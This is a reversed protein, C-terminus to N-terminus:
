GPPRTALLTAGSPNREDVDRVSAARGIEAPEPDVLVLEPSIEHSRISSEFREIEDTRIATSM